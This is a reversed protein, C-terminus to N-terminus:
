LKFPRGNLSIQPTQLPGNIRIKLPDRGTYGQIFLSAMEKISGKPLARISLNVISRDMPSRLLLSGSGNQLDATEGEASFQEVIIRGNRMSLRGEIKSFSVEGVPITWGGIEKFRGQDLTLSLQGIGKSFDKTMWTGEGKMTVQGSLGSDVEAINLAKGEAVLRYAAEEGKREISLHGSIGGGFLAAEIDIEGRRNILFPLLSLTLDASKLKLTVEGPKGRVFLRRPCSAKVGRVSVKVPLAFRSQSVAIRCGSEVELTQLAKKELLDFPFTLYLFVFFNVLGFLAYGIIQYLTGKQIKM